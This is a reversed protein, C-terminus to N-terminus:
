QSVYQKKLLDETYKKMAYEGRTLDTRGALSCSELLEKLVARVTLNVLRENRDYLEAFYEWLVELLATFLMSWADGEMRERMELFVDLINQQQDGAATVKMLGNVLPDERFKEQLEAADLFGKMESVERRALDLIAKKIRYNHPIASFLEVYSLGIHGNRIRIESSYNYFWFKRYNGGADMTSDDAVISFLSYGLGYIFSKYVDM